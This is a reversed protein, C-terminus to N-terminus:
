FVEALMCRVSGGGIQELTPIPISVLNMGFDDLLAKVQANTLSAKAAESMVLLPKGGKGKLALMNGAFGEFLQQNSLKIVKRGSRALAKLVRERDTDVICDAGIAAFGPALTMVVNTHYVPKGDPGRTGFPVVTYGSSAEFAKLPAEHTRSSLAAYALKAEHDLVLSGTGELPQGLKEFAELSNDFLYGCTRTLYAIIDDRREKRRTPSEMPFTFLRGSPLAALWNNPFVADPTRPEAIDDFTLVAVGERELAALVAEFEALARKQVAEPALGEGQRQFANSAATEPNFGFAAPRVM